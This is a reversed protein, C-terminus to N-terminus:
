TAPKWTTARAGADVPPSRDLNGTTEYFSPDSKRNRRREVRLVTLTLILGNTVKSDWSISLHDLLKKVSSYFFGSSCTAM